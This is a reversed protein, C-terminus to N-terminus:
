QIVFCAQVKHISALVLLCSGLVLLCSDLALFLYFTTPLFFFLLYYEDFTYVFILVIYSTICNTAYNIVSYNEQTPDQNMEGPLLKFVKSKISRTM